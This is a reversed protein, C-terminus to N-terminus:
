CKLVSARLFNDNINQVPSDEAVLDRRGGTAVHASQAGASCRCFSPFILLGAGQKSAPARDM